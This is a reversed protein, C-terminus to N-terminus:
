TKPRGGLVGCRKGNAELLEDSCRVKEVHARCYIGSRSRHPLLEKVAKWGGKPYVARLIAREEDSWLADWGM